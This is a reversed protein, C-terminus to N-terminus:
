NVESDLSYWTVHHIMVTGLIDILLNKMVIAFQNKWGRLLSLANERLKQPLRQQALAIDIGRQRDPCM